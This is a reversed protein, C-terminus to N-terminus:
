RRWIPTAERNQGPLQACRPCDSLSKHTYGCGGCSTMFDPTTQSGAQMPTSIRVTPATPQEFPRDVYISQAVQPGFLHVEAAASESAVHVKADIRKNPTRTSLMRSTLGKLIDIATKSVSNGGSHINASQPSLYLSKILKGKLSSLKEKFKNIPMEKISGFFKPNDYHRLYADKAKKGTDFGLMVKQEDIETFGPKKMQTVIFVNTAEKDPGVFVDVADGDLGLTGKIYGYPYLMSTAGEEGSNEDVWYRKSGKRNEVSILLGQFEIHGHLKRAKAIYLSDTM